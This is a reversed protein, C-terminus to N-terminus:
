LTMAGEPVGSEGEFAVSAGPLALRGQGDAAEPACCVACFAIAVRLRCGERVPFRLAGSIRMGLGHRRTPWRHQAPDPAGAAVADGGLLPVAGVSQPGAAAWVLLFRQGWSSEDGQASVM